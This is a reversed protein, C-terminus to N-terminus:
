TSVDANIDSDAIGLPRALAAALSRDLNYITWWIRNRLEMDAPPTTSKRHLRLSIATQMALALVNHATTEPHLGLLVSFLLALYAQVTV